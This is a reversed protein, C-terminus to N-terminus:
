CTSAVPRDLTLRATARTRGGITVRVVYVGQPFAADDLAAPTFTVRRTGARATARLTRRAPRSRHEPASVTVVARLTGGSWRVHPALETFPIAQCLSARGGPAVRQQEMNVQTLTFATIRVKPAPAAATAPVASAVVALGTAALLGRGARARLVRCSPRDRAFSPVVRM